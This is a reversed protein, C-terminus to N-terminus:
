RKRTSSSVQDEFDDVEGKRTLFFTMFGLGIAALGLILFAVAKSRRVNRDDATRSGGHQHMEQVTSADGLQSLDAALHDDDSVEIPETTTKLDKM